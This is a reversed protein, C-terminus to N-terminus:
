VIPYAGPRAWLCYVLSSLSAISLRELKNRFNKFYPSFLKIVNDVPTSRMFSKPTFKTVRNQLSSRKVAIGYFNIINIFHDLKITTHSQSSTGAVSAASSSGKVKSHHPLHEVM